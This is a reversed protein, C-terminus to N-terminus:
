VASLFVVYSKRQQTIDPLTSVYSLHAPLNHIRKIALTILIDFAFNWQLVHLSTVTCSNLMVRTENKPCLTYLLFLLFLLSNYTHRHVTVVTETM